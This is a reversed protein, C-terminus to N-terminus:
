AANGISTVSDPITLSTLGTCGSFAEDGISTVSKPITVSTLGICGSFASPGILTVKDGITLSTLKTKKAFPSYIYGPSSGYSLTRGMYVTELPCDSFLGLGNSSSNYGLQLTSEGDEINLTTLGTCGSFAYNRISTVSNPITISTLGSCGDFASTLIETVSNPITVSTLGSCGSFAFSRIIMVSNPITVSTLGSCGSFASSGIETVSNPITVATLGTCDRFAYNGIETVSYETANYTVKEPIIIEGSYNDSGSTVSVTKATSSSISYYIGDVQFDYAMATLATIFALLLSYCRKMPMINKPHHGARERMRFSIIPEIIPFAHFSARIIENRADGFAQCLIFLGSGVGKDSISLGKDPLPYVVLMLTRPSSQGRQRFNAIESHLIFCTRKKTLINAMLLAGAVRSAAAFKVNKKM